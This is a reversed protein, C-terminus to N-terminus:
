SRLHHSCAYQLTITSHFQHELTWVVPLYSHVNGDSQPCVIGACWFTFFVMCIHLLFFGMFNVKLLNQPSMLFFNITVLFFNITVLLFSGGSWSSIFWWVLFFHVVLGLLFSGGSWSSIFWWVVFTIWYNIYNKKIKM